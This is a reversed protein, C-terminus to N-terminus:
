HRANRFKVAIKRKAFQLKCKFASYPMKGFWKIMVISNHDYGGYHKYDVTVFGFHKYIEIAHRNLESAELKVCEFGEEQLKGFLADTLDSLIHQGKYEPLVSALTYEPVMGDKCNKTYWKACKVMHWCLTGVPKDGDLAVFIKGDSGIRQQIEAPSIDSTSVSINNKRNDSHAKTIVDAILGYSMEDPKECIVIGSM